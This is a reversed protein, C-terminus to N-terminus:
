DSDCSYRITNDLSWFSSSLPLYSVQWSCCCANFISQNDVMRSRSTGSELLGFGKKISIQGNCILSISLCTINYHKMPEYIPINLKM